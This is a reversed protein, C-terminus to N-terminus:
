SKSNDADFGGLAFASHTVDLSDHEDSPSNSDNSETGSDNGTASPDHGDVNSDTTGASNGDDNGLMKDVLENATTSPPTLVKNEQDVRSLMAFRLAQVEEDRKNLQDRLMFIEDQLTKIESSNADMLFGRTIFQQTLFPTLKRNFEVILSTICESCLYVVGNTHYKANNETREMEVDFGLDVFFQREHGAGCCICVFPPAAPKDMIQVPRM